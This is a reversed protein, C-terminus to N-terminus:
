YVCYPWHVDGCIPNVSSNPENKQGKKQYIKFQKVIWQSVPDGVAPTLTLLAILGGGIKAMPQTLKKLIPISYKKAGEANQLYDYLWGGAKVGAKAELFPFIGNGTAQYMIEEKRKKGNPQTLLAYGYYPLALLWGVIGL